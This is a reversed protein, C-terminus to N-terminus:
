PIVHMGISGDDIFERNSVGFHAFDHHDFTDIDHDYIPQTIHEFYPMAANSQPTRDSDSEVNSSHTTRDSESMAATIPSTEDLESM